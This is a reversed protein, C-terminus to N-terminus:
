TKKRRQSSVKNKKRLHVIILLLPFLTLFTMNTKDAPTSPYGEKISFDLLNYPSEMWTNPANPTGERVLSTIIYAEIINEGECFLQATSGDGTLILQTVNWGNEDHIITVVGLSRTPVPTEISITFTNPVENLEKIEINYYRHKIDSISYPYRNITTRTNISYDANHFGYLNDYIGLEDITCATIFDLFVENFSINYGHNLLVHELASCGDLNDIPVLDRIIQIGYKEAIYFWFMYGAGYSSYSHYDEDFCILSVSPYISYQYASMSVNLTMGGQMFSYNSMYGAYYMSFEALGEVFFIAENLDYNFLFLHNTEHCMVAITNVLQMGTAVYVMERNNSYTRGVIENNQLYYSGVGQVLFVTIRPDGDIDGLTGTPNGMLEFNKPYVVRDFESSLIECREIAQNQGMSIITRNDMYIYCHEGVALLTARIQSWEITDFDITWFDEQNGFSEFAVIETQSPIQEEVFKLKNEKELITIKVDNPLSNICNTNFLSIFVFLLLIVFVRFRAM